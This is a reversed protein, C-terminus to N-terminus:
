VLVMLVSGYKKVLKLIGIYLDWNVIVRVLNVILFFLCILFNLLKWMILLVLVMLNLLMVILKKVVVWMMGFVNFILM